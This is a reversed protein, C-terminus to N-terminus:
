CWCISMPAPTSNAAATAASQQSRRGQLVSEPGLRAPWLSILLRDIFAARARVLAEVPEEDRFRQQLEQQSQLLLQRCVEPSCNGAALLSPVRELLPWDISAPAAPISDDIAAPDAIM